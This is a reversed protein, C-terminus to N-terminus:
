VSIEEFTMTGERVDVGVGTPLLRRTPGHGYPMGTIVPCPCRRGFDELVEDITGDEDEGVCRHFTGIVVGGASELVNTLLLQTLMRDVRYPKEGVDELLLLRGDLNPFFRTGLLHTLLSLCGGILTGKLRGTHTLGNVPEFRGERLALNLDRDLGPNPPGDAADLGLAFGTLSPMGSQAYMALQFATTDSFGVFPKPNGSITSWDVWDLVRSSGYGGRAILVARVSDDIFMQMLDQARAEDTGALFRDQQGVSDGVKVKYGCAELWSVAPAIRDRSVPSAPAIIGVTDGDQLREFM